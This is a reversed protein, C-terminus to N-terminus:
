DAAVANEATGVIDFTGWGCGASNKSDPRGAGVGVQLGVRRMLNAIDAPQFMDADYKIRVLAEWGPDYIPRSRIDPTTGGRGQWVVADFRRPNANRIFVLPAADEKDFGDACVFLSLKAITMKFGVLRCASILAARFATASIGFQGGETQRIAGEYLGDFDKPGRKKGKQAQSGEAMKDYMAQFSQIPMKNGVFPANGRILIGITEMNPASVIVSEGKPLPAIDDGKKDLQTAAKRAAKSAAKKTTKAAKKTKAM